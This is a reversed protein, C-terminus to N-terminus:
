YRSDILPILGTAARRRDRDYAAILFGFAYWLPPYYFIGGSFLAATGLGVALARHNDAVRYGRAASVLLISVVILGPIGAVYVADLIFNHAHGITVVRGYSETSLSTIGHGFLSLDAFVVRYASARITVTNSERQTVESFLQNSAIWLLSFAAVFAVVRVVKRRFHLYRSSLAVHRSGIIAAVLGAAVLPGLEDASWLIWGALVIVPYVLTRRTPLALFFSAAVIWCVHGLGIPNIVPAARPLFQWLLLLPLGLMAMMLVPFKGPSTLGAFFMPVCTSAFLILISVARYDFPWSSIVAFAGLIVPCSAILAGAPTRVISLSTIQSRRLLLQVALLAGSIAILQGARGEGAYLLPWTNLIIFAVTVQPPVACLPLALAIAVGILVTRGALSVTVGIVSGLVIIALYTRNRLTKSM